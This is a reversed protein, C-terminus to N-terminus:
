AGVLQGVPEALQTAEAHLGRIRRDLRPAREPSVHRPTASRGTSGPFMNKKESFVM